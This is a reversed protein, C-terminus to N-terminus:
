VWVSCILTRKCKPLLLLIRCFLVCFILTYGNFHNIQKEKLTVIQLESIQNIFPKKNYITNSAKHEYTENQRHYIPFTFKIYKKRNWESWEKPSYTSHTNTAITKVFRKTTFIFLPFGQVFYPDTGLTFSSINALNAALQILNLKAISIIALPKPQGYSRFIQSFSM